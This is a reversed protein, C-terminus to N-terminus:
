SHCLLDITLAASWSFENIGLGEGTLPNYYEFFGHEDALDIIADKLKKAEDYFGYNLLGKILMWNINIWVPGRWYNLPNFEEDQVAISTILSHNHVCNQKCIHSHKMWSLINQVKEKDLLDTFISMLSATTRKEIRQKTSIDYDYVLHENDSDCCFYHYYNKETKNQWSNIEDCNQGIIEAIKFLSKNAMYLISSFVVDKIKFPTLDYIKEENYHCEKLLEILYVYRDYFFDSPREETGVRDLDTRTYEPVEKIEIKSLTDDWRVSNDFGSEWPHFITVLGTKEPDRTTMLYNHFKLLKPYIQKLFFIASNKDQANQFVHYAAIAHVPPHTIGSTRMNPADPSLDINWFEPPPFYSKKTRYVTHPVMGNKWQGEFLSLLEDQARYQNIHANGIAIFASDWSWQHPYLTLSPVTYRGKWNKELVDKAQKFVRKEKKNFNYEDM